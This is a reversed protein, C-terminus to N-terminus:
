AYDTEVIFFQFYDLIHACVMWPSLISSHNKCLVNHITAGLEFDGAEHAHVIVSYATHILAEEQSLPEKKFYVRSLQKLDSWKDNSMRM